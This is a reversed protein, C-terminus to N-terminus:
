INQLTDDIVSCTKIGYHRFLELANEDILEGSVAIPIAPPCSIAADCVTKGLCEHGVRLSGLSQLGGPEEIWPIKWALTNSHTAM